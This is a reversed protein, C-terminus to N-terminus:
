TSSSSSETLVLLDDWTAAVLKNSNNVGVFLLSIIQSVTSHAAQRVTHQRNPLFLWGCALAVANTWLEVNNSLTEPHHRLLEMLQLLSSLIELALKEAHAPSFTHQNGTQGTSSSVANKLTTKTAANAHTEEHGSATTAVSASQSNSSGWSFWSSYSSTATASATAASNIATEATSAAADSSHSTKDSAEDESGRQQQQQQQQQVQIQQQQELQKQKLQQIEKAYLKQYYATVVQAQIQYVRVMHLGDSPVIADAEMLLRMARFSIELLKFDANPYNAALLFPHLLDSSRFIATTPHQQQQQNYTADESTSNSSSSAKACQRVQAVYGAQLTRLKLVARESAEKVGPHRSRSAAALDRLCEELDRVFNM